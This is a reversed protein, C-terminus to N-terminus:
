KLDKLNINKKKKFEPSEKTLFFSFALMGVFGVIHCIDRPIIGLASNQFILSGYTFASLLFAVSFIAVKWWCTKKKM